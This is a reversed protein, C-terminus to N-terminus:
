LSNLVDDIEAQYDAPVQASAIAERVPDKQGQRYHSLYGYLMPVWDMPDARIRSCEVALTRVAEPMTTPDTLLHAKQDIKADITTNFPIVDAM